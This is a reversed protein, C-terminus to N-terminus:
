CYNAISAVSDAFQDATGAIRQYLSDLMAPADTGITDYHVRFHGVLISKQLAPRTLVTQLDNKLENSLHDRNHIAFSIAPLGCKEPLDVSEGSRMYRVLATRSQKIQSKEPKNAGSFASMFSLLSIVGAFLFLNSFRHIM